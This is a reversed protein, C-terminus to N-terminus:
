KLNLGRWSVQLHLWFAASHIRQNTTTLKINIIHCIDGTVCRETSAIFRGKEKVLEKRLSCLSAHVCLLFIVNTRKNSWM